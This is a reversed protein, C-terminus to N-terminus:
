KTEWDRYRKTSTNTPIADTGVGIESGYGITMSTLTIEWYWKGSTFYSTARTKGYGGSSYSATLNENSLVVNAYKDSPNWTAM